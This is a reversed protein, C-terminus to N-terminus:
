SKLLLGKETAYEEDTLAGTDRLSALRELDRVHGNGADPAPHGRRAAWWARLNATADGAQADPFERAAQRRLLEVGLVILAAIILIPVIHRLAPTPGWLLVLLYAFGVVAYVRAPHDRMSPACARRVAQASRTPGALWAAAVIVLGYIVFALSIARLLGTAINWTDHAAPKVSDARVLGDVIWDGGIRRVLLCFLGVGFFCWGTTRLTLRRRPGRALFIALAYLVFAVIASIISLHRIGKAVDQATKLQNARMITLKGTNPPLAGSVKQGLGVDGALATVLASLDLVVEGGTTSVVPGGGNLIRLLQRHANENALQWADQVRPRALLRPAARDAVQRLGGAAPGALAQFQSPLSQQLQGAVDVNTFLQNVLYAGLAAQVNKSELIQSSTNTWNKTDLAQRKVWTSLVAVLLVVTALVLVGAVAIRRGRTM